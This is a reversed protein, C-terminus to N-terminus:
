STTEWRSAPPADLKQFWSLHYNAAIRDGTVFGETAALLLCNQLHAPEVDPSQNLLQQYATDLHVRLLDVEDDVVGTGAAAARALTHVMRPVGDRWHTAQSLDWGLDDIDPLERPQVSTPTEAFEASWDLSDGPAYTVLRLTDGLMSSAKGTRREPPLLRVGEPIDIRAPIWGHALDTVLVTTGDACDGVAWNLKPEQRVVFSLLRQLREDGALPLHGWNTEAPAAPVPTQPPPEPQSEPAVAPTEFVPEPIPAVPPQVATADLHRGDVRVVDPSVTDAAAAGPPESDRVAPIVQTKDLDIPASDRRVPPRAHRAPPRATMPQVRRIVSEVRRVARARAQEIVKAEEAQRVPDAMGARRMLKLQDNASRAIRQLDDRLHDAVTANEPTITSLEAPWLGGIVWATCDIPSSFAPITLSEEAARRLRQRASMRGFM